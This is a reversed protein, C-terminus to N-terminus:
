ELCSGLHLHSEVLVADVVVLFAGVVSTHVTTSVPVREPFKHGASRSRSVHGSLLLPIGGSDCRGSYRSLSAGDAMVKSLVCPDEVWTCSSM